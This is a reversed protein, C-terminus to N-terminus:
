APLVRLERDSGASEKERIWAEQEDILATLRLQRYSFIRKARDLAEGRAADNDARVSARAAQYDHEFQRSSAALAASAWSPTQYSGVSEGIAPVAKIRESRVVLEPGVLHRLFWGSPRVGEGRIEYYVEVWEGPPVDHARRAATTVPDVSLPLEAL